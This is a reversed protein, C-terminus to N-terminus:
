EEVRTPMQDIEETEYEWKAGRRTKFTRLADVSEMMPVAGEEEKAALIAVVAEEDLNRPM